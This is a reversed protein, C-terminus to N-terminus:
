DSKEINDGRIMMSDLRNQSSLSTELRTMRRKSRVVASKRKLVPSVNDSYSDRNSPTEDNMRILGM